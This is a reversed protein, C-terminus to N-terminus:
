GVERKRRMQSNTCRESEEINEGLNYSLCRVEVSLEAKPVKNVKTCMYTINKTAKTIIHPYDTCVFCM